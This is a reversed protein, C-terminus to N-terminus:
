KPKIPERCENAWHGTKGCNYCIDDAQPGIKRFRGRSNDRYSRGNYSSSSSHYRYRDRKSGKAPQVVIRAGNLKFGDKKKPSIFLTVGVANIVGAATLMLINKLKLEKIHGFSKFEHELDQETVSQPIKALFIQPNKDESM